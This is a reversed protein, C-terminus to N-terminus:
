MSVGVLRSSVMMRTVTKWMWSDMRRVEEGVRLLARLGGQFSDEVRVKVRGSHERGAKAM